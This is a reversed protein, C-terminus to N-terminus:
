SSVSQCNLHKRSEAAGPWLRWRWGFQRSAAWFALRGLLIRISPLGRCFSSTQFHKIVPHLSSVTQAFVLLDKCKPDGPGQRGM